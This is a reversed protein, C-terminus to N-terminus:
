SSIDQGIHIMLNQSDNNAPNASDNVKVTFNFDGVSTPTGSIDGTSADLTLGTPLSGAFVSWTYPTTGGVAGLSFDYTTNAIGDPVGTTTIQLVGAAAINISFTQSDTKAVQSSDSVSVTFNSDGAATPMGSIVGTTANITVGSPLNGASIKWNYPTTGGDATLSTSYAIGVEGNPLSSNNIILALPSKPVILKIVPKFIIKGEGTINVSHDADFDFLLVTTKGAVVTFPQIFKLKGSPVTADQPQGGQLTVQIKSVQMRIQTYTGASLDITSLVQELGKIQLLDFTNSGSLKMSKWSSEDTENGGTKLIEVSSVTVQVSTVQQSPPADTVRVEVKGSSSSCGGFMMTLVALLTVTIFVIKRKM